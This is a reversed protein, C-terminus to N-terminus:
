GRWIRLRRGDALPADFDMANGDIQTQDFFKKAASVDEAAAHTILLFRGAQVASEYKRISDKTFGISFLGDGLASLGGAVGAKDLAAVISAVMPGAVVLTGIEPMWFYASGSLGGCIAGAKGWYRVRDGIRFYGFFYERTHHDRGVISLKKLDFGSRHLEQVAQEAAARSEHVAVVPKKESM